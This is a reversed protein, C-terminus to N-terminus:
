GATRADALASGEVNAGRGATDAMTAGDAEATTTSAGGGGAGTTRPTSL